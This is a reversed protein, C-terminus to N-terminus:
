ELRFALGDDRSVTEEISADQFLVQLALNITRPHRVDDETTQVPQAPDDAGDVRCNPGVDLRIVNAREEVERSEDEFVVLHTTEEGRKETM